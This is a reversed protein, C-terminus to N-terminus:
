NSFSPTISICPSASLSADVASERLISRSEEPDSLCFAVTHGYVSGKGLTGCCGEPIRASHSVEIRRFYGAVDGVHKARIESYAASSIELIAYTHTVRMVVWDGVSRVAGSELVRLM